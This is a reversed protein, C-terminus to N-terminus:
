LEKSDRAAVEEDSASAIGTDGCAEAENIYASQEHTLTVTQRHAFSNQHHRNALIVHWHSSM